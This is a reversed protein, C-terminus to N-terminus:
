ATQSSIFSINALTYTYKLKISVKKYLGKVEKEVLQM